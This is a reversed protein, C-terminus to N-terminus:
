HLFWVIPGMILSIIAKDAGSTKKEPEVCFDIGNESSIECGASSINYPGAAESLPTNEGDSLDRRFIKGSIMISSRKRRSPCTGSLATICSTDGNICYNVECHYYFAPPTSATAQSAFAFQNLEVSALKGATQTVWPLGALPCKNEFFTFEDPTTGAPPNADATSGWCREIGITHTALKNKTPADEIELKIKESLNLSGAKVQWVASGASQGYINIKLDKAAISKDAVAEVESTFESGIEYTAEGVAGIQTDYTCQFKVRGFKTTQNIMFNFAMTYVKTKATDTVGM